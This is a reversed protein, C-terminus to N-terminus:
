RTGMEKYYARTSLRNFTMAIGYILRNILLIKHFFALFIKSILGSKIDKGHFYRNTNKFQCNCSLM